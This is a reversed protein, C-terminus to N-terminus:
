IQYLPFNHRATDISGDSLETFNTVCHFIDANGYLASIVLRNAGIPVASIYTESSSTSANQRAIINNSDNNMIYQNNPMMGQMPMLSGPMGQYGFNGYSINGPINQYYGGYMMDRESM